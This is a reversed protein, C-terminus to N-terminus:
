DRPRMPMLWCGRMGSSIGGCWLNRWHLKRGRRTSSRASSSPPEWAQWMSIGWTDCRTFSGCGGRTVETLLILICKGSISSSGTRPWGRWVLLPLVPSRNGEGPSDTTTAGINSASEGIRSRSCIKARSGRRAGISLNKKKKRIRQIEKKWAMEPFKRWVAM